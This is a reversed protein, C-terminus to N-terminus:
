FTAFPQKYTDKLLERIGSALYLSGFVIAEKDIYVSDNDKLNIVGPFHVGPGFYYTADKADPYKKEEEFFIHLANHESEPELM